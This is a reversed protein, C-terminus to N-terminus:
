GKTNKAFHICGFEPGTVFSADYGESDMYALGDPPCKRNDHYVFKECTCIGTQEDKQNKEPTWCGCNKCIKKVM